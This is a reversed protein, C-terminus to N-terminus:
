TSASGRAENAELTRKLIEIAKATGLKLVIFGCPVQLQMLYKERVEPNIDNLTIIGVGVERCEGDCLVEKVYSEWHAADPPQDINVFLISEGKAALVKRLKKHDKVLYVEYESKALEEAVESLVPPPYLFFIKKGLSIAEDM